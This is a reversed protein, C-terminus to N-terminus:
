PPTKPVVGPMVRGSNGELKLAASKRTPHISNNPRLNTSLGVARIM